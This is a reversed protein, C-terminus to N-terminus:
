LKERESQALFKEMKEIIKLIKLMKWAQILFFTSLFLSSITAYFSKSYEETLTAEFLLFALSAKCFSIMSLYNSVSKVNPACIQNSQSPQVSMKQYFGQICQLLKIPAAM